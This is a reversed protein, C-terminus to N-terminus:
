RPDPPKMAAMAGRMEPPWARISIPEVRSMAEPNGSHVINPATGDVVCGSRLM